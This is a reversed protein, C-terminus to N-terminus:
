TSVNLAEIRAKFQPWDEMHKSADYFAADPKHAYKAQLWDPWQNRDTGFSSAVTDKQFWPLADFEAENEIVPGVCQSLTHLKSGDSAPIEPDAYSIVWAVFLDDESALQEHTLTVQGGDRMTYTVTNKNTKSELKAVRREGKDLEFM